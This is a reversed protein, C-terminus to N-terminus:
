GTHHGSCALGDVQGFGLGSARVVHLEEVAEHAHGDSLGVALNEPDDAENVLVTPTM